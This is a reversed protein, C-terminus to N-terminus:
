QLKLFESRVLMTFSNFDYVNRFILVKEQRIDEIKLQIYKISFIECLGCHFQHQIFTQKTYYFTFLHMHGTVMHIPEMASTEWQQNWMDSLHHNLYDKVIQKVCM